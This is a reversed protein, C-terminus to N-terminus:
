NAFTLRVDYQWSMKRLRYKDEMSCSIKLFLLRPFNELIMNVINFTLISGGLDLNLIGASQMTAVTTQNDASLALGNLSLMKLKTLPQINAVLNNENLKHCNELLLYELNCLHKLFNVNTLLYQGSLDLYVLKSSFLLKDLLPVSSNDLKVNRLSFYEFATSHSMINDLPQKEIHDVMWENIPISKWLSHTGRCVDYWRKCVRCLSSM